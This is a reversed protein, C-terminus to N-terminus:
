FTRGNFLDSPPARLLPIPGRLPLSTGVLLIPSYTGLSFVHALTLRAQPSRRTKLAQERVNETTVTRHPFPLKQPSTPDRPVPAVPTTPSSTPAVPFDRDGCSPPIPLEGVHSPGDFRHSSYCSRLCSGMPFVTCHFPFFQQLSSRFHVRLPASRRGASPVVPRPLTLPQFYM